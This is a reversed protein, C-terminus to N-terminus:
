ARSNTKGEHGDFRRASLGSCIKAVSNYAIDSPPLRPRGAAPTPPCSLMGCMETPMQFFM